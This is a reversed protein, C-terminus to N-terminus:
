IISFVYNSLSCLIFRLFGEEPPTLGMYPEKEDLCVCKSPAIETNERCHSQLDQDRVDARGSFPEFESEYPLLAPSWPQLCYIERSLIFTRRNNNNTM